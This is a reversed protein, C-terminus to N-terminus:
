TQLLDELRLVKHARAIHIGAFKAEWGIPLALVGDQQLTLSACWFQRILDGARLHEMAAAEAGSM